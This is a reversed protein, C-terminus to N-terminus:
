PLQGLFRCLPEQGDELAGIEIAEAQSVKRKRLNPTRVTWWDLNRTWQRSAM